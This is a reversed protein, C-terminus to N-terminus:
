RLFIRCRSVGNPVAVSLAGMLIFTAAIERPFTM